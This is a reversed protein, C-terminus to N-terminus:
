TIGRTHLKYLEGNYLLEQKNYLASMELKNMKYNMRKWNMVLPERLKDVNECNKRINEPRDPGTKVCESVIPCM